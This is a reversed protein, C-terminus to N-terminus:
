QWDPDCSGVPRNNPHAVTRLPALGIPIGVQFLMEQNSCGQFVIDGQGPPQNGIQLTPILAGSEDLFHVAISDTPRGSRRVQFWNCIRTPDIGSGPIECLSSDAEIIFTQTQGLELQQSRRLRVDKVTGTAVRNVLQAYGPFGKASVRIMAFPTYAQAQDAAFVVEYRGDAATSATFRTTSENLDPLGPGHDVIVRAGPVPIGLEDTVLGSLRHSQAATPPIPTAPLVADPPKPSPSAPSNCGTGLAMAVVATLLPTKM